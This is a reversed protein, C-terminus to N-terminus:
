PLLGFVAVGNPTGVYVKGNIIMPTIFKNGNGFADRNSSAQNSNYLETALNTATYAHLVAPSGEGSELAWVIGNQGANASVSPTAGPYPFTNASQTAAPPPNGPPVKATVVFSKLYTGVGGYYLTGNFYAPSSWAGNPLFGTITGLNKNKTANYKGLNTRDVIYLNGDKGAGVAFQAAPLPSPLPVDILIIGGSGLDTDSASEAPGNFPEFYDAVALTGGTTSLKLISNGYDGLSPFNSADLTTDFTGNADLLYVNGAADAALGGGSM